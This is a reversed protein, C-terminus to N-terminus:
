HKHMPAAARSAAARPAPAVPCRPEGECEDVAFTRVVRERLPGSLDALVNWHGNMELALVGRYQGPRGTPAAAAPKVSHAMPMSPMTAGLVVKLGDAPVAGRSVQLTCELQPGSGYAVCAMDVQPRVPQGVAAGGLAALLSLSLPGSRVRHSPHKM